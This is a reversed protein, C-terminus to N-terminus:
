QQKVRVVGVGFGGVKVRHTQGDDEVSVGQGWPGVSEGAWVESRSFSVTREEPSFNVVVLVKGQEHVRAFCWVSDSGASKELAIPLYDGRRLEVLERRLRIMARYTELLSGAKGQQEEVSRGDHDKSYRKQIVGENLRWYDTMPSAPDGIVDMATWKFPERRPIDNADSGFSGAKGEMGIEDGFYIIPPLPLVMLLGAALKARALNDADAEARGADGGGEDRKGRAGRAGGVSSAIRDVDHDGLSALLTRGQPVAKMAVRLAEAAKASKGEAISERIAFLLPKALTADHAPLLDVGNTEWGAQEAFTFVKPNVKQLDKKWPVWFDKINYGWGDPGSQYKAWVHDLRFGDVGDSLDGDGDPDMWKRCWSTVLERPGKQRLDWWVIGIKEGTWTTFDYGQFWTTGGSGEFKSAPGPGLSAKDKGIALWRADRDDANDVANKFWTSDQSIGYAVLDIFVKIKKAHAARVFAIFEEEKGLWPNVMDAPGHQYGHYARSPFIPTMWVATVGLGALYDLSQTMGGFDGFRYKVEMPADAGAKQAEEVRQSSCRWVLPMFQYFVEDHPDFGSPVMQARVGIASLPWVLLAVLRRLFRHTNM